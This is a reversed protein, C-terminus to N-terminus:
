TPTLEEHMNGNREHRNRAKRIISLFFFGVVCGFGLLFGFLGM